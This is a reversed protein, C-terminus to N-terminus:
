VLPSHRRRSTVGVIALGLGLLGLHSPEPAPTIDRVAIDSIVAFNQTQLAQFTLTNSTATFDGTVFQGTEPTTSFVSGNILGNPATAGTLQTTIKGDDTVKGDYAWLEVQYTNGSMLGTLTITPGTGVGSSTYLLSSVVNQYDSSGGTYKTYTSSPAIVTGTSVSIKGSTDTYPNSGIRTLPNFTVGNVTTAINFFTGADFAAGNNAIDSDGSMNTATNWSVVPPSAKCVPVVTLLISAALGFALLLKKM